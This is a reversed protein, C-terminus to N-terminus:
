RDLELRHAVQYVKGFPDQFMARRDGYPTDLPAEILTAGALSAKGCVADANDVYIHLFAPFPEREDTSSLLVVSDGIHVNTPRGEEIQATADFVTRLFDV